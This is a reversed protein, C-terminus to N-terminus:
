VVSLRLLMEVVLEHIIGTTHAYVDGGEGENDCICWDGGRAGQCRFRRIM